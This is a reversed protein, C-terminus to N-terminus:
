IQETGEPLIPRYVADNIYYMCVQCKNYLPMNKSCKGDNNNACENCICYSSLVNSFVSELDIKIPEESQQEHKDSTNNKGKIADTLEMLNLNINHLEEILEYALQDNM